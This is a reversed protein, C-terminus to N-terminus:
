GQNAIEDVIREQGCYINFRDGRLFGVVTMGVDKALEIALSSPAGVAVFIPIGVAAGKQVLEFSARGSVMLVSESLQGLEEHLFFHGILKDLANHRGVDERSLIIEGAPSFLACAHLGGTKSFGFQQDRLKDALSWIVKKNVRISGGAKSKLRQCAHSPKLRLSELSAKGCVGCSSTAYFNREMGALAFVVDPHLDVRVVNTSSGCFGVAQVDRRDRLLGETLLFGAALELDHGPTRMTISVSRRARKDSPGSEVRIELPEEIALHDRVHNIGALADVMTIELEHTM